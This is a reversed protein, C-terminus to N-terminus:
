QFSLFEAIEKELNYNCNYSVFNFQGVPNIELFVYKGKKDLIIDISGTDLKAKKMFKFIKKEIINPLLFPVMRNPIFWNYARFDLTTQEDLQSFIAMSFLKGKMVFTRIEIDKEVREQFLSPFFTEELHDLTNNDIVSPGFTSFECKFNDNVILDRIISKSIISKGTNILDVLDSKQNLVFTNPISFGSLQALHLDYLKNKSNTALFSGLSKSNPIVAHLFDRLSFWERELNQLINAYYNSRFHPLELMFNGRRYWFSTIESLNIVVEENNLYYNLGNSTIEVKIKNSISGQNIIKYPINWALLWDVVLHTTRDNPESLILIM